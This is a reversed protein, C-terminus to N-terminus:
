GAGEGATGAAATGAAGGAATGAATHAEVATGRAEPHHVTRATHRAEAVLTHVATCHIRAAAAPSGLATGLPPEPAPAGVTSDGAPTHAPPAVVQLALRLVVVKLM